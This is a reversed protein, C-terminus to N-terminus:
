SLLDREERFFVNETDANYVLKLLWKDEVWEGILQVIGKRDPLPAGKPTKSGSTTWRASVMILYDLLDRILLNNITFIAEKNVTQFPYEHQKVIASIGLASQGTVDTYEADETFFTAFTTLDKANWCASFDEVLSLIHSTRKETTRSQYKM